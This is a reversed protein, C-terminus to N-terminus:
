PDLVDPTEYLWKNIVQRYLLAPFLYKVLNLQLSQKLLNRTQLSYSLFESVRFIQSVGRVLDSLSQYGQIISQVASAISKLRTVFNGVYGNFRQLMWPM